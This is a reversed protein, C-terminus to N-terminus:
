GKVCVRITATGANSAAVIFPAGFLAEPLAYAKGAAISTALDIGDVVVPVPTAEPGTAVFWNLSAATSVSDVVFLGGGSAGYPIKKNDAATASVTIPEGVSSLREIKHPM